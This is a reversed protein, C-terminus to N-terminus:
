FNVGATPYLLAWGIFVSVFLDCHLKSHMKHPKFVLEQFSNEM